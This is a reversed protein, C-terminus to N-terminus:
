PISFAFLNVIFVVEHCQAQAIFIMILKIARGTLMKHRAISRARLRHYFVDCPYRCIRSCLTKLHSDKRWVPKKVM